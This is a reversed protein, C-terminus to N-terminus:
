RRASLPDVFELLSDTVSTRGESFTGVTLRPVDSMLLHLRLEDHDARHEAVLNASEPVADQLQEVFVARTIM